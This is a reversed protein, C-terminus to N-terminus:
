DNERIRKRIRSLSQPKMGLYSAIQKHPARNFLFPRKEMLNKYREEPSSSVFTSWEEQASSIKQKAVQQIIEDLRPVLKRLDDEFDQDSLTLVCDELCEIYSRSAHGKNGEMNYSVIKDGETYFATTKEEGDILRYERICGEVVMYCKSNVQGEKVLFEGKSFEEVVTKDVILDIEDQHLMGTSSIIARVKDKSNM